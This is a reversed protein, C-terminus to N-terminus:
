FGKFVEERSFQMMKPLLPVKSVSSCSGVSGRCKKNQNHLISLTDTGNNKIKEVISELCINYHPKRVGESPNKVIPLKGKWSEGGEQPTLFAWPIKIETLLHCGGAKSLVCFYFAKGASCLKLLQDALM